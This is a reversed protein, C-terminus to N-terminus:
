KVLVGKEGPQTYEMSIGYVRDMLSQINMGVGNMFENPLSRQLFALMGAATDTRPIYDLQQSSGYYLDGHSVAPILRKLDFAQNLKPATVMGKLAVGVVAHAFTDSTECHSKQQVEGLLNVRAALFKIKEYTKKLTAQRDPGGSAIVAAISKDQSGHRNFRDADLGDNPNPINITQYGYLDGLASGLVYGLLLLNKLAVAARKRPELRIQSRPLLGKVDHHSADAAVLKTLEDHLWYKTDNFRLPAFRATYRSPPSRENTTPLQALERLRDAERARPGFVVLRDGPFNGDGPLANNFYSWSGKVFGALGDELQTVDEGYHVDFAATAIPRHLSWWEEDTANEPVVEGIFSSFVEARNSVYTDSMGAALLENRMFLVDGAQIDLLGYKSTSGPGTLKEGIKQSSPIDRDGLQAERTASLNFRIDFNHTTLAQTQITHNWAGKLGDRNPAGRYLDGM